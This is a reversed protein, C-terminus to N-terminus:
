ITLAAILMGAAHTEVGAFRIGGSGTEQLVLPIRKLTAVAGGKQKWLAEKASWFHLVRHDITCREMVAIEADTLFLHAAKESISRIVEVDIGVPSGSVAAAGYAGSHSFSVNSGAAGHQRLVKEAIRSLMWERRRKERAFSRVLVLESDDFWSEPQEVETVIAARARWPQPLDVTRM